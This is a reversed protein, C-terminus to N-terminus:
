WKYGVRGRAVVYTNDFTATISDVAGIPIVNTSDGLDIVLAEAGLVLHDTAAVEAGGGAAWGFEVEEDSDAVLVPVRGTIASLGTDVEGFALGGTGYVHFRDGAVGLRGRLTSFWNLESRVTLPVGAVAFAESGHIDSFSADGELGFVFHGSQGQLGVHGGGVFGDADLSVSGPCAGPVACVAAFGASYDIGVDDGIDWGYGGNGGIYFGSWDYGPAVADQAVAASSLLAAVFAAGFSRVLM